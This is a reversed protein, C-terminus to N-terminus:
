AQRQGGVADQPHHQVRGPSVTVVYILGGILGIVVMFMFNVLSMSVAVGSDMGAKAFLYAAGAERVGLGGISPLAASVCILPVFILFYVISVDQRLGLAVLYFSFAFLGQSLCSVGIGKFGEGMKHGQKLLAIDYHMNMLAQKFKPFVGFVAICFSYVREHFLVLAVLFSGAMLVCIPVLLSSERHFSYGLFYAVVSIIVIAAFGSLRDLLVSAVVKPKQSSNKCLGLIKIIDGGVASPLFLNGFLGIFFYRTITVIDVDLELARIFIVWRWLIIMHIIFFMGGALAIYSLDASKLVELTKQTDIKSFIFWLIGGSLALRFAFSLFNKVNETM